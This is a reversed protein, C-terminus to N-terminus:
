YKRFRWYKQKQLKYNKYQCIMKIKRSIASLYGFHFPVIAFLRGWFNSYIIILTM